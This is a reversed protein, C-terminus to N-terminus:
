TRKAYKCECDFCQSPNVCVFSLYVDYVLLKSFFPLFKQFSSQRRQNFNWFNIFTISNINLLVSFFGMIIMRMIGNVDYQLFSSSFFYIILFQIFCFIINLFRVLNIHSLIRVAFFWLIFFLYIDSFNYMIQYFPIHFWLLEDQKIFSNTKIMMLTNLWSVSWWLEM